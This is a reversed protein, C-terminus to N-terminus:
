CRGRDAGPLMPKWGTRFSYLIAPRKGGLDRPPRLHCVTVCPIKKSQLERPPRTNPRNAVQTTKPPFTSVDSNPFSREPSQPAPNTARLAQTRSRHRRVPAAARPSRPPHHPRHAPPKRNKVEHDTPGGPTLVQENNEPHPTFGTRRLTNANDDGFPLGSRPDRPSCTRMARPPPLSDRPSYTRM